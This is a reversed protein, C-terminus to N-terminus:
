DIVGQAQLQQILPQMQDRYTEWADTSTQYIPQRVQASSATRVQRQQRDFALCKEDWELGCYALLARIQQEPAQVLAEYRLEFMYGPLVRRWHAMLQHYATYYRGLDELDYAFPQWGSFYQKFCSLCTAIPERVCHIVRARPFLLYILGLYLFNNPMKNVVFPKGDRNLAAVRQQYDSAMAALTPCDLGAIGEPYAAGTAGVVDALMKIEGAGYVLPHSALISETLTTGSRPMGIIFLPTAASPPCDAYRALFDASFLTQLRRMFDVDTQVAYDIRSRHLRNAELLAPFVKDTQGEDEYVRALAFQLHLRKNDDLPKTALAEMAAIDAPRHQRTVMTLLRYAETFDSRQRIAARYADAAEDLRGQIRHIEGLQIHAEAFGPRQSLVQQFTEIADAYAGADKQCNALNVLANLYGPQLALAQRYADIAEAYREQEYLVTALNNYLAADNAGVAIADRYYAEAERFRRQASCWVGLQFHAAITTPHRALIRLATQEAAERRGLGYQLKALTLNYLPNEPQQKLARQVAQMGRRVQGVQEYVVAQLHHVDAVDPYQQM